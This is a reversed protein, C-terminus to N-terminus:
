FIFTQHVFVDSEWAFARQIFDADTYPYYLSFASVYYIYWMEPIFSM